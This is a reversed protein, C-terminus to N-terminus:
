LGALMLQRTGPCCGTVIDCAGGQSVGTSLQLLRLLTSGVECEM